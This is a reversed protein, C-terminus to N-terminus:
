LLETALARNRGSARSPQSGSSPTSPETSKWDLYSRMLSQMCAEKEGAPIRRDSYFQRIERLLSATDSTYKEDVPVPVPEPKPLERATEMHDLGYAPDDIEDHLLFETSVGLASALKYLQASQPFREGSEYSVVTRFGLGANQALAKQTLNLRGRLLKVKEKFNM